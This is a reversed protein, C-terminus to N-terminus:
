AASATADDLVRCIDQPLAPKEICTADAFDPLAMRQRPDGSIFIVVCNLELLELALPWVAESGVNIDLLAINPTDTELLRRAMTLTFAPGLVIRGTSEVTAALDIAILTEDDVVLVIDTEETM